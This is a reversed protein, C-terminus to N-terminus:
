DKYECLLTDGKYGKLQIKPCEDGDWLFYNSWKKVPKGNESAWYQYRKYRKKM